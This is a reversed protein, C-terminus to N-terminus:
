SGSTVIADVFPKLVEVAPQTTADLVFGVSHTRFRAKAGSQPPGMVVAATLPKSRGARSKMFSHIQTRVWAESTEGYYILAADCSALSDEHYSRIEAPDGEWLPTAVELGHEFMYDCIDRAGDADRRDFIVYVLAGAAPAAAPPPAAAAQLQSSVMRKLDELSVELLDLNAMTMAQSELRAVFVRQRDTSAELGAPKWVIRRFSSDSSAREGALDFQLEVVSRDDGEPVVGYHRGTLHVSMRCRMLQERVAEQLAGTELRLPADPLVRYGHELLDKRITDREARMDSSTEALYVSAASVPAAVSSVAGMSAAIDHALDDIHLFYNRDQDGGFERVRGSNADFEFFEYGLL